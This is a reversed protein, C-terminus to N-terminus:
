FKLTERIYRALEPTQGQVRLDTISVRTRARTTSAIRMVLRAAKVPAALRKM